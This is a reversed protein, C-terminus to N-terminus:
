WTNDLSGCSSSTASYLPVQRAGKISLVISASSLLISTPFVMAGYLFWAEMMLNCSCPKSTPQLKLYMCRGSATKIPAILVQGFFYSEPNNLIVGHDSAKILKFGKHRSRGRMVTRQRWTVIGNCTDFIVTGGKRDYLSLLHRVCEPPFFTSYSAFSLFSCM